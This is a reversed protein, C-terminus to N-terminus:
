TPFKKRQRSDFVIVFETAVWNAIVFGIGIAVGTGIEIGIGTVFGTVFGGIGPGTM